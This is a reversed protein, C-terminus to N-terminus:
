DAEERDGEQVVQHKEGSVESPVGKDREGEGDNAIGENGKKLSVECFEEEEEQGEEEKKLGEREILSDEENEDLKTEDEPPHYSEDDDEDEEQVREEIQNEGGIDAKSSSGAKEDTAAKRVYGNARQGGRRGGEVQDNFEKYLQEFNETRTLHVILKTVKRGGFFGHNTKIKCVEAYGLRTILETVIAVIHIGEEGYGHLEVVEFKQNHFMEKALYVYFKPVKAGRVIIINEPIIIEQHNNMIETNTHSFFYNPRTAM